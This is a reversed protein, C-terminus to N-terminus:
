AIEKRHKPALGGKRGARSALVRDRSFARKDKTLAKGGKSAIAKRQELDMSAFGRRSHLVIMEAETAETDTFVPM